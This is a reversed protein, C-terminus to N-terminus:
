RRIKGALDRLQDKVVHYQPVDAKAEPPFSYVDADAEARVGIPQHGKGMLYLALSWRADVPRPQYPRRPPLLPKRAETEFLTPTRQNANM